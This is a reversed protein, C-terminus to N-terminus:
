LGRGITMRKKNNGVFLSGLHRQHPYIMQIIKLSSYMLFPIVATIYFMAIGMNFQAIATAPNIVAAYSFWAVGYALFQIIADIWLSSITFVFGLMITMMLSRIVARNAIQAYPFDRESLETKETRELKDLLSESMRPDGTGIIILAGVLFIGAQIGTLIVSSILISTILMSSTFMLFAFVSFMVITNNDVQERFWMKMRGPRYSVASKMLWQHSISDPYSTNGIADLNSDKAAKELFQLLGRFGVIKRGRHVSVIIIAIGALATVVTNEIM